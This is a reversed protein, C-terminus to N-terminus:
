FAGGVVQSHVKQTVQNLASDLVGVASQLHNPALHSYRLTMTLSKHGLLRSVTTIDVGAMVLHSAFTHRLDHFHFDRIGARRCATGFSRKVDLYRKGTSADYFVHPIDLRRTLGQLTARLTDNIPVERREGNKTRDLMIFGHKLDIQEWKLSLIEGKRMGTNLATTVIPRLHPECSSVLARCEDKSLFRLRKNNEELLRVQRVRKLTEESLMEWQYGKHICHKLTALLRNATAPKKGRNKVTETQFQEIAMVSLKNIPLNGFVDTLQRIFYVKSNFSRQKECWKSYEGALQAFTYNPIKKIPEPEKGERIAQKRKILEGEAERFNSTKASVRVIKGTIDAYRLWYVGGRKYLGRRM